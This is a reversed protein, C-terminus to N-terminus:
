RTQLVCRLWIAPGSRKTKDYPGFILFQLLVVRLRPILSEWKRREESWLIAAPREVDCGPQVCLPVKSLNESRM